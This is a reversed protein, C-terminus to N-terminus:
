IDYIYKYASEDPNTYYNEEIKNVKYGCDEFVKQMGKNTARTEGCIRKLTTKKTEETIYNLLRHALGQKRYDLHIALNMIKMYDYEGEWNYVFLNGILKDGDMLAYYIGREDALLDKMDEEKWYDTPFCLKDFDMIQQFSEIGLRKQEIM